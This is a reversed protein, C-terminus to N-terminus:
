VVLDKISATQRESNVTVYVYLKYTGPDLHLPVPVATDGKDLLVSVGTNTLEKQAMGNIEYVRVQIGAEVPDGNNHVHVTVADQDKAVNGISLSTCGSCILFIICLVCILLRYASM